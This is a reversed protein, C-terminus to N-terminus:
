MLDSAAGTVDQPMLSVFGRALSGSAGRDFARSQKGMALPLLAPRSHTPMLHATQLRAVRPRWAEARYQGEGRSRDCDGRQRSVSLAM